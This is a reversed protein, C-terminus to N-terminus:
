ISRHFLSGYVSKFHTSRLVLWGQHLTEGSIYHISLLLNGFCIMSRELTQRSTNQMWLSIWAVVSPSTSLVPMLVVARPATASAGAIAWKQVCHCLAALPHIPSLTREGGLLLWSREQISIDSVARDGDARQETLPVLRLNGVLCGATGGLRKRREARRMEEEPERFWHKNEIRIQNRYIRDMFFRKEPPERIAKQVLLRCYHRQCKEFLFRHSLRKNM